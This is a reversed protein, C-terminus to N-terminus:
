FMKLIVKIVISFINDKKVKSELNLNCYLIDNGYEVKLKGINNIEGNNIKDYYIEESIKLDFMEDSKLSLFSIPENFKFVLKKNYLINNEIKYTDNIDYFRNLKYYTDGYNLLNVMESNRINSSSSGMIVGILRMNNKNMTATLCYGAEKTWGTKLGDIEPHTKVLKNTNVLWFPNNSDKRLYDSYIKSYNLVEPYNYILTRAIIAMDYSTSYHNGSHLGTANEFHTNKLGLEKVKENMLNSFNKESGSIKEALSIAADNGSAIVVGKILDEVKMEENESLFIKSGTVSSANKSTKILTDYSFVNNNIAEYTLLLTMMKTMSAPYMRKDENKKYIVKLTDMEILISSMGDEVIEDAKVSKINFLFIVLFVLIFVKKM